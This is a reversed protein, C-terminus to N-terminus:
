KVPKCKSKIITNYKLAYERAQKMKELAENSKITDGFGKMLRIGCKERYTEVQSQNIGPVNTARLAFGLLQYDKNDLARYADNEAVSNISWKAPKYPETSTSQDINEGMAQINDIGLSFLAMSVLISLLFRRISHPIQLNSPIMHVRITHPASFLVQVEVLMLESAGSALADVM